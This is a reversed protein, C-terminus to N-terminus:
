TSPRPTTPSSPEVGSRVEVPDYVAGGGEDGRRGDAVSSRPL